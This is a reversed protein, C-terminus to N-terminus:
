FQLTEEAGEVGEGRAESRGTANMVKNYVKPNIQESKDGVVLFYVGHYFFIRTQKTLLKQKGWLM